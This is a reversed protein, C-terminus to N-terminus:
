DKRTSRQPVFGFADRMREMAYVPKRENGPQAYYSLDLADAREGLVARLMDATPVDCSADPGVINFVRAGPTHPADLALELARVVDSVYVRALQAFPINMPTTPGVSQGPWDEPVVSGFRFSAFDADPYVRHFYGTLQEVLSKSVGYIDKALCPHDDPIPAALPTFLRDLCGTAAISSATIFKRVGRDLLYRFLRRSGQVNVDLAEEESSGGTVAALHIVSDIEFSDLKRLDEFSQFAGKVVPWDAQLKSRTMVVIPRSAALKAALEAAIFGTGGTILVAM